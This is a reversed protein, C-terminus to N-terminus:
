SLGSGADMNSSDGAGSIYSAQGDTALKIPNIVIVEVPARAVPASTAGPKEDAFKTNQRPGARDTGSAAAADLPSQEAHTIGDGTPGDAGENNIQALQRIRSQQTEQIRTIAAQRPTQPTMHEPIDVAAEDELAGSASIM